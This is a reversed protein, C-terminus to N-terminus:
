TSTAATGRCVNVVLCLLQLNDITIGKDIVKVCQAGSVVLNPLSRLIFAMEGNLTM